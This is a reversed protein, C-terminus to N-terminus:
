ATIRGNQDLVHDTIAHVTIIRGNPIYNVLGRAVRGLDACRLAVVVARARLSAVRLDEPIEDEIVACDHVTRVAAFARRICGRMSVITAESGPSHSAVERVSHHVRLLETNLQEVAELLLPVLVNATM